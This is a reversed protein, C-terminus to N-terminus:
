GSEAVSSHSGRELGQVAGAGVCGAGIAARIDAFGDGKGPCSMESLGGQPPTM